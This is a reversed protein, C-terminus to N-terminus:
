AARRRRWGLFGLLALGTAFLALTSPEPAASIYQLNDLNLANNFASITYRIEDFTINQFGYFNNSTPSGTNFTPASFSEVLVGMIFAQFTTTGTNTRLHFGATSVPADFLISGPPSSTPNFLFRGTVNDVPEMTSLQYLFGFTVGSFQTTVFTGVPLAGQEFDIVVDPSSLGSAPTGTIPIAWASHASMYAAVVAVSCISRFTVRATRGLGFALLATSLGFTLKRLM